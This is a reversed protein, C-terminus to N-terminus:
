FCATDLPALAKCRTLLQKEQNCCLQRMHEPGGWGEAGGGELGVDGTSNILAFYLKLCSHAVELSLWTCKNKGLVTVLLTLLIM